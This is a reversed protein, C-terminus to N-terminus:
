RNGNYREQLSKKMQKMAGIREKSIGSIQPVVATRIGSTKVSKREYFDGKRSEARKMIRVNVAFIM